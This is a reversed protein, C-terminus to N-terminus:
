EKLRKGIKKLKYEIEDISKRGLSRIKSLDEKTWKTLLEITTIRQRYLCNYTRASFDLDEITLLEPDPGPDLDSLENMSLGFKQLANQVESSDVHTSITRPSISILDEVTHIGMSNLQNKTHEQIELFSLGAKLPVGKESVKNITFSWNRGETAFVSFHFYGEELITFSEEGEWIIEAFDNLSETLIVFSMPEGPLDTIVAYRGVELRYSSLIKTGVGELTIGKNFSKAGKRLFEQKKHEFSEKQNTIEKELEGKKTRLRYLKEQLEQIENNVSVLESQLIEITSLQTPTIKKVFEAKKLTGIYFGLLLEVRYTYPPKHNTKEFSYLTSYELYPIDKTKVKIHKRFSKLDSGLITM